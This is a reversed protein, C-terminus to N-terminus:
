TGAHIKQYGQNNPLTNLLLHDSDGRLRIALDSKRLLVFVGTWRRAQSEMGEIRKNASIKIRFYYLERRETIALCVNKIEMSARLANSGLAQGEKRREM